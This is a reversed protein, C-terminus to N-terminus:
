ACDDDPALYPGFWEVRDDYIPEALNRKIAQSPPTGAWIVDADYVVELELLRKLRANPIFQILEGM